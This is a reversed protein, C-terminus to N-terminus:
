LRSFATKAISTSPASCFMIGPPKKLSHLTKFSTLIGFPTVLMPAFAPHKCAVGPYAELIVFGLKEDVKVNVTYSVDGNVVKYIFGQAMKTNIKKYAENKAELYKEINSMTAEFAKM